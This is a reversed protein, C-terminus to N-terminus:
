IRISHFVLHLHVCLFCYTLHHESINNRIINISQFKVCDQLKLHIEINLSKKWMLYITLMLDAFTIPKSTYMFHNKETYDM